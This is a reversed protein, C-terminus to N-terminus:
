KDPENKLIMTAAINIKMTGARASSNHNRAQAKMYIIM